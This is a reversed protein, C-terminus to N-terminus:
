FSLVLTTKFVQDLDDKRVRTEGFVIESGGDGVTEFFEDGNGPVGDPDRVEVRAVQDVDQLAPEHNFLWRLSVRLSLRKSMSVSLANTMDSSWDNTDALSVNVTWDHDFTTNKGLKDMYTWSLRVGAFREEKEPDPTEERRDTGSLGYSSLFKRDERDVWLHGLGAFVIYRSEIGADENSDWSAGANWNLEKRITRDYRGEVFYNEADLVSPLKVLSSTVGTPTEGPEWTFGPDVQVFWDDANASRLVDVKLQLRSDSWRWRFTDKFAVSQTSSNGETLAVSLETENAWPKGPLPPTEQASAVSGAMVLMLLSSCASARRM